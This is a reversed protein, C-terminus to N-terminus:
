PSSFEPNMPKNGFGIGQSPPATLFIEPIFILGLSLGERLKCVHRFFFSSRGLVAFTPAPDDGTGTSASRHRRGISYCYRCPQLMLRVSCSKSSLSTQAIKACSRSLKRCCPLSNMPMMLWVGGVMSLRRRCRIQVAFMFLGSKGLSKVTKVAARWM